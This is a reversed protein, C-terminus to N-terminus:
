GPPRGGSAQDATRTPRGRAGSPKAAASRSAARAGRAAATRSSAKGGPKAAFSTRRGAVGTKGAQRARGPSARRQAVRQNSRHAATPKSKAGARGARRTSVPKGPQAQTGAYTILPPLVSRPERRVMLAPVGLRDFGQDLLSAMHVDRESSSAAGMVVGILRVGGRVASTVVNFGSADTYGTKLGDAGPYSELLRQHTRIVRGGYVFYPASFYHYDGPFDEILRRGLIAMDRASTVQGWDPLGSANQFHTRTMGLARARLTMMAAFRDEDGGLLEAVAAAADNASKTVLSLIAQEVTIRSGPLLGLKSPAMSAAHASVPVLQGLRVRRDRLAEFLMYLTMMKTLSAPFRQEDMNAQLVIAGTAENVVISAYRESGIQAAAPRAVSVTLIAAFAFFCGIRSAATLFM